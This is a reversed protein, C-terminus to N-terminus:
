SDAPALRGHRGHSANEVSASEACEPVTTPPASIRTSGRSCTRLGTDLARGVPSRSPPRSHGKASLRASEDADCLAAESQSRDGGFIAALSGRKTWRCCRRRPRKRSICFRRADTQDAQDTAGFRTISTRNKSPPMVTAIGFSRLAAAASCALPDALSDFVIARRISTIMPELHGFGPFDGNVEAAIVIQQETVVAQANYGQFYGRFMKL